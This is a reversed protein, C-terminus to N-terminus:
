YYMLKRELDGSRSIRKADDLTIVDQRCLQILHQDMTQM